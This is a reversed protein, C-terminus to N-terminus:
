FWRRCFGACDMEFLLDPQHKAGPQRFTSYFINDALDGLVGDAQLNHPFAGGFRAIVPWRVPTLRCADGHVAIEIRIGEEDGQNMFQRMVM